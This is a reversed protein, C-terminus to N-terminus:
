LSFQGCPTRRCPGAIVLADFFAKAARLVRNAQLSGRNSQGRWALFGEATVDAFFQWRCDRFLGELLRRYGIATKWKRKEDFCIHGAYGYLFQPLTRQRLKASVSRRETGTKAFEKGLRAALLGAARWSSVPLLFKGDAGYAGDNGAHAGDGFDFGGDFSKRGLLLARQGVPQACAQHWLFGRQERGDVFRIPRERCLTAHRDLFHAAIQAL